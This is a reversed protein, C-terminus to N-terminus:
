RIGRYPEAAPINKLRLGTVMMALRSSNRDWELRQAITLNKLDIAAHRAASRKIRRSGSKAFTTNYVESEADTLVVLASKRVVVTVFLGRRALERTIKQKLAMLRFAYRPTGPQSKTIDILMSVPFVDGKKLFSTDPYIPQMEANLYVTPTENM